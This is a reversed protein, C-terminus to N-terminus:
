WVIRGRNRDNTDHLVLSLDWYNGTGGGYGGSSDSYHVIPYASGWLGEYGRIAIWHRARPREDPWSALHYVGVRAMHPNVAMALPMGYIAIDTVVKDHFAKPGGTREVDYSWAAFPKRVGGPHNLGSRIGPAGTGYITTGMWREIISQTAWNTAQRAGGLGTSSVDRTYNIIVQAVAPGCNYDTTQQRPFTPLIRASPLDSRAALSASVAAKEALFAEVLSASADAMRGPSTTGAAAVVSPPAILALTALM